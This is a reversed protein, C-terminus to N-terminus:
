TTKESCPADLQEQVAVKNLTQDFCAFKTVLNSKKRIILASALHISDFGRLSYKILLEEIMQNLELSVPVLIFRAYDDKFARITERYEVEALVGERFKRSFTALVEAFAVVSTAIELANEWLADVEDSRSEEVYRKLLASTDCYLIM